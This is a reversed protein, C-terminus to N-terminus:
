TVSIYVYSRIDNMEVFKEGPIIIKLGKWQFYFSWVVYCVSLLKMDSFSYYALLHLIFQDLTVNIPCPYPM